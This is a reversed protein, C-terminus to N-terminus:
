KMDKINENEIAKVSILSAPDGYKEVFIEEKGIGEMKEGVTFGTTYNINYESLM